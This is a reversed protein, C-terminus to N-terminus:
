YYLIVNEAILFLFQGLNNILSIILILCEGVMILKEQDGVMKDGRYSKSYGERGVM